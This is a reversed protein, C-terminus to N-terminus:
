LCNKLKKRNKSKFLEEAVITLFIIMATIFIKSSSFDFSFCTSSFVLSFMVVYIFDYINKVSENNKLMYVFPILFFAPTYAGSWLPCMVMLFSLIFLRKWNDKVFALLCLSIIGFAINVCTAAGESVGLLLLNNYIGNPSLEGWSAQVSGLNILFQCLGEFGGTFAFPVFFFLVGYIILRITQSRKKEIIYLLGFVAPYVKIAAAVAICLLAIEQKVKNDSERFDVAILLLILVLFSINACQVIGFSFSSSLSVLVIFILSFLDNKKKLFRKCVFAFLLFGIILYISCVNFYANYDIVDTTPAPMINFLIHYFLYILPPFCAHVSMNYVESLDQAFYTHIIFDNFLKDLDGVASFELFKDPVIVLSLLSIIVSVGSIAFFLYYSNIKKKM